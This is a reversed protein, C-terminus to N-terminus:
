GQLKELRRWALNFIMSSNDCTRGDLAFTHLRLDIELLGYNGRVAVLFISSRASM